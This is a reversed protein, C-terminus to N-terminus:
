QFVGRHMIWTFSKISPDLPDSKYDRQHDEGSAHMRGRKVLGLPSPGNFLLIRRKKVVGMELVAAEEVGPQRHLAITEPGEESPSETGISGVCFRLFLEFRIPNRAKGFAQTLMFAIEDGPDPVIGEEDTQIFLVPEGVGNKRIPGEEGLTLGWGCEGQLLEVSGDLLDINEDGMVM